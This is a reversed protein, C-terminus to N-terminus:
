PKHEWYVCHEDLDRGREIYVGSPKPPGSMWYSCAPIPPAVWAKAKACQGSKGPHLRGAATRKWEAHKCDDCRKM